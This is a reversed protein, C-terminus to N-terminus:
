WESVAFSTKNLWRNEIAYGVVHGDSAFTKARAAVIANSSTSSAM